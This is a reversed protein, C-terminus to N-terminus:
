SNDIIIESVIDPEYDNGPPLYQVGFNFNFYQQKGMNLKPGKACTPQFACITIAMWFMLLRVFVNDFKLLSKAFLIKHFMAFCLLGFAIDSARAIGSDVSGHLGHWNLFLQLSLASVSRNLISAVLLSCCCTFVCRRLLQLM